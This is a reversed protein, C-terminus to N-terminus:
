KGTFAGFSEPHLLAKIRKEEYAGELSLCSLQKQLQQRDHPSARVECWHEADQLDKIHKGSARIDSRLKTSSDPLSCCVRCVRHEKVEHTNGGTILLTFYWCIEPIANLEKM